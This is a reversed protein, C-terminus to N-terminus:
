RGRREALPISWNRHSPHMEVRPKPPNLMAAITRQRLLVREMDSRQVKHFPQPTM